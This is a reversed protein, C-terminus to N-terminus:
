RWSAAATIRVRGGPKRYLTTKGAAFATSFCAIPQPEAPFPAEFPGGLQPVFHRTGTGPPQAASTNGDDGWEALGVFAAAGGIVAAAFSALVAAIIQGRGGRGEEPDSDAAPGRVGERAALMELVPESTVPVVPAREAEDDV